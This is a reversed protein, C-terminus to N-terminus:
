SVTLAKEAIEDKVTGDGSTVDRDKDRLSHLCQCLRIM